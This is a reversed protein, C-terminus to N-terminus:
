KKPTVGWMLLNALGTQAESLHRKNGSKKAAQVRGVAARIADKERQTKMTFFPTEKGDITEIFARM